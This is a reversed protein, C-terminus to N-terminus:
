VEPTNPKQLEALIKEYVEVLDKENKIKTKAIPDIMEVYMKMPELAVQERSM